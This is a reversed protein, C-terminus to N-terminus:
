AASLVIVMSIPVERQIGPFITFLWISLVPSVQNDLENTTKFGTMGIVFNSAENTQMILNM